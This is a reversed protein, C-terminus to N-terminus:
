LKAKLQEVIDRAEVFRYQAILSTLKEFEEDLSEPWRKEKLVAVFAQSERAQLHTLPDELQRLIEGIETLTAVPPIAAEVKEAVALPLEGPSVFTDVLFEASIEFKLCFSFRSGQGPGSTVMVDGGLQRCIKRAITLGLGTGGHKRTKSGDGQQFPQFILEQQEASIGVGQDTVAFELTVTTADHDCLHLSLVVEGGSSFKIANGVLQNLVQELAGPYGRVRGPIQDSLDLILEVGSADGRVVFNEKVRSLLHIPNFSEVPRQNLPQSELESILLIEDIQNLLKKASLNIKDIYNQQRQDLSSDGLLCGLGIIANMPTRLEHSMTSLFETKLRSSEEAVLRAQVSAVEQQQTRKLETQLSKTMWILGYFMVLEITIFLVIGFLILIWIANSYAALQPGMDRWLIVLGADPQGSDTEGRFDRLPFSTFSYHTEGASFLYHGPSKLIKLFDNRTILKEIQSSTTAEICYDRYFPKEQQLQAMLDPSLRAQLHERSLLVTADLWPRNKKFVSLIAPFSGSVELAGVHVQEKAVGDLAYVPAVGRIGSFLRGTEFGTVPQQEANVTVVTDRVDDLQEGFTEPRYIRLFSLAGPGFHFQLQIFGFQEALATYSPRVQEALATRVQASLEGGGSGGELAVAQKGLLFLQQVKENSAFFTAIQLLRLEASDQESQFAYKSQDSVQVLEEMLRRHDIQAYGWIYLMISCLLVISLLLFIKHRVNMILVSKQKM